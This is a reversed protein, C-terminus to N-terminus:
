SLRPRDTPIFTAHFTFYGITQYGTLWFLNEPDFLLAGALGRQRLEAQLWALREQYIAKPAPLMDIMSANPKPNGATSGDNM